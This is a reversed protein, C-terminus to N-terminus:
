VYSRAQDDHEVIREVAEGGGGAFTAYRLDDVQHSKEIVPVWDAINATDGGIRWVAAPEAAIVLRENVRM